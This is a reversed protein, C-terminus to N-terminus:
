YISDVTWAGDIAVRVRSLIKELTPSTVNKIETALSTNLTRSLLCCFSFILIRLCRLGTDSIAQTM